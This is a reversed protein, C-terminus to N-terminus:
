LQLQYEHHCTTQSCPISHPLPQDKGGTTWRTPILHNVGFTSVNAAHYRVQAKFGWRHQPSASRLLRFHAIRNTLQVIQSYSLESLVFLDLVIDGTQAYVEAVNALKDTLKELTDNVLKSLIRPAADYAQVNPQRGSTGTAVNLYGARGEAFARFTRDLYDVEDFFLLSISQSSRAFRRLRNSIDLEEELVLLSEISTLYIHQFLERQAFPRLAKCTSSLSLLTEYRTVGGANSLFRKIPASIPEMIALLLENPM